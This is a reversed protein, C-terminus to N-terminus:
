CRLMESLSCFFQVWKTLLMFMAAFRDAIKADIGPALALDYYLRVLNIRDHRSPDFKLALWGRLERTWHTAGPSFDGAKVSVYLCNLIERLNGQCEADDEVPYPLYKFYPYTRPRYRAKQEDAGDVIGDAPKGNRM